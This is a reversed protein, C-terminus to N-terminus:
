SRLKPFTIFASQVTDEGGIPGSFPSGCVETCVEEDRWRVTGPEAPSVSLDPPVRGQPALERAMLTLLSSRHSGLALHHM